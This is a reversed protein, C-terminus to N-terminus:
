RNSRYASCYTSYVNCSVMYSAIPGKIEQNMAVRAVEKKRAFYNDSRDSHISMSYRTNKSSPFCDDVFMLEFVVFFFDDDGDTSLNYKFTTNVVSEYNIHSCSYSNNDNMM